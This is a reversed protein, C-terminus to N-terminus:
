LTSCKLIQSSVAAATITSQINPIPVQMVEESTLTIFGSTSQYPSYPSTRLGGLTNLMIWAQCHISSSLMHSHQVM